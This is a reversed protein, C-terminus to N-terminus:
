SVAQMKSAFFNVNKISGQNKQQTLPFDGQNKTKLVEHKQENRPGLIFWTIIHTSRSKTRKTRNQEIKSSNENVEAKLNVYFSLCFKAQKTQEAQFAQIKM